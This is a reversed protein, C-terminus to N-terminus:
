SIFSFFRQYGPDDHMYGITYIHVMLSVFTVVVMMLATLRDVLFGIEMKLGDTVAWTYVTLNHAEGGDFFLHKLVLTSLVFSLGVAIITAWHAGARGIRNGFLGAVVAAFL